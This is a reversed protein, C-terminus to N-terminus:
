DEFSGESLVKISSAYESPTMGSTKKFQRCFYHVSTYGLYDSIQSFNLNQERILEKALKVKKSSFYAIVGCNKRERFLKQLKSRSVLNDRCIEETTLHRCVNLDFYESIRKFIQSDSARKTSKVPPIAPRHEMYRRSMLLLLEELYLRILQESAYPIPERRGLKQLYPDDLPTCFSRRAEIIIQAMLNRELDNIELLKDRFFDMAPSTCHFSMVMLNPACKGNAYLRHFENPKHFYIQGKTLNYPTDQAYITVEGKDVCCFEWFNHSEGEFSFDNMYEFYHVSVISEVRLDEQLVTSVYPM